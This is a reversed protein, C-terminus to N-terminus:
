SEQIVGVLSSNLPPYFVFVFLVADLFHLASSVMHKGSKIGNQAWWIKWLFQFTSLRLFEFFAMLRSQFCSLCVIGRSGPKITNMVNEVDCQILWIKNTVNQTDRMILLPINTKNAVRYISVDWTNQAVRWWRAAGRCQRTAGKNRGLYLHPRILYEVVAKRFGNPGWFFEPLDAGIISSIDSM